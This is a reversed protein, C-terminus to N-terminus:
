MYDRRTLYPIKNNQRINLVAEEEIDSHVDGTEYLLGKVFANTAGSLDAYTYVDAARGEAYNYDLEEFSGKNKDYVFTGMEVGKFNNKDESKVTEVHGKKDTELAVKMLSSEGSSVFITSTREFIVDAASALLSTMSATALALIIFFAIIKRKM